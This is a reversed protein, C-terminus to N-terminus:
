NSLTIQSYTCLFISIVDLQLPTALNFDFLVQNLEVEKELDQVKRKAEFCDRWADATNQNHNAPSKTQSIDDTPSRCLVNAQQDVFNSRMVSPPEVTNRIASPPDIVNGRM